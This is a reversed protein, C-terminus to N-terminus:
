TAGTGAQAERIARRKADAITLPELHDGDGTIIVRVQDRGGRKAAYMAEDARGFFEDLGGRPSAAAVVGVSVTVARPAAGAAPAPVAAIRPMRCRVREAAEIAEIVTTSPLLVAFEEGGVRGVLDYDRLLARTGAAVSQLVADGALHGYTDNVRKFHDIDLLLVATPTGTRVARRLERAAAHRWTADNLLGTKGDTRTREVLQAHVVSRQMSIVLPLACAAALLNGRAACAVLVGAALEAADNALAERGLAEPWIRLGPQVARVATLILVDNAALRTMGTTVVLLTWVPGGAPLHFAALAVHFAWSAAGYALGVAAATYARRHPRGRRVRFQTQVQRPVPMLMVCVPPLLVAAPLEWIGYMERSNGPPEGVRRTVEVAVAQCGLLVGWLLLDHASLRASWGAAVLAAAYVAAAGSVQARLRRPLRWLEWGTIARRTLGFM